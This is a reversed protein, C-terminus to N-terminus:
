FDGGFDGFDGGGFDDFGGGGGFDDYGGGDDYGGDDYGGDDYGGDDYGGDDYGTDQYGQQDEAAGVNEDAAMEQGLIYMYTRVTYLNVFFYTKVILLIMGGQEPNAEHNNTVDNDEINTNNYTNYENHIHTDHSHYGLFM